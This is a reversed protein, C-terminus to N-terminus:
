FVNAPQVAGRGGPDTPNCSTQPIGRTYIGRDAAAKPRDGSCLGVRTGPAARQPVAQPRRHGRRRGRYVLWAENEMIGNVKGMGRVSGHM